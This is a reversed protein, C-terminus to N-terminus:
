GRHFQGSHLWQRYEVLRAHLADQAIKPTIRVGVERLDAIVQYAMDIPMNGRCHNCDRHALRYNDGHDSGGNSATEVHDRTADKMPVDCGCLHCKGKDKIWISRVTGGHVRSM